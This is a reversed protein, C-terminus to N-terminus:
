IPVRFSRDQLHQKFQSSVISASGLNSLVLEADQASGDPKMATASKNSFELKKRPLVLPQNCPM